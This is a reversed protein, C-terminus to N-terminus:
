ASAQAQQVAEKPMAAQAAAAAAKEAELGELYTKYHDPLM